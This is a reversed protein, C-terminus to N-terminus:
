SPHYHTTEEWFDIIIKVLYLVVVGVLVDNFSFHMVVAQARM